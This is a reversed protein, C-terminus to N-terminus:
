KDYFICSNNSDFGHINAPAVWFCRVPLSIRLPEIHYIDGFTNWVANQYVYKYVV